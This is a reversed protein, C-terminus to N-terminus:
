ARHLLDNELSKIDRTLELIDEREIESYFYIRNDVTECTNIKRNFIDSNFPSGEDSNSVAIPIDNRHRIM